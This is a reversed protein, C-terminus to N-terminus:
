RSDMSVTGMAVQDGGTYSMAVGGLRTRVARTSSTCYSDRSRSLGLTKGRRALHYAEVHQPSEDQDECDERLPTGVARYCKSLAFVPGKSKWVQLGDAVNGGRRLTRFLSAARRFEETNRDLERNTLHKWM